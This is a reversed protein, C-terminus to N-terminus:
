ACLKTYWQVGLLSAAKQQLHHTVCPWRASVTFHEAMRPVDIDHGRRGLTLFWWPLSSLLIILALPPLHRHHLLTKQVSCPLQVQSSVTLTIALVFRHLNLVSLLKAHLPSTPVYQWGFSLLVPLQYCSPSNMRKVLIVGLLDDM